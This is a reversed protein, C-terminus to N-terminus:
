HARNKGYSRLHAKNASLDRPLSDTRIVLDEMRSWLSRKAGRARGINQAIRERVIESKSVNRAKADATLQAFVLDPLKVTLTKMGSITNRNICSLLVIRMGTAPGQHLETRFSCLRSAPRGCALCHVLFGAPM